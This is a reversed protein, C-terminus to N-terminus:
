KARPKKAKRPPEYDDFPVFVASTDLADVSLIARDKTTLRQILLSFTVTYPVVAPSGSRGRKLRRPLRISVLPETLDEGYPFEVAKAVGGVDALLVARAGPTKVISATVEQWFGTLRSTDPISLPVHFTAVKEAHLEQDRGQEGLRLELASFVLAVQDGASSSQFTPKGTGDKPPLPQPNLLVAEGWSVRGKPEDARAALFAAGFLGIAGLAGRRNMPERM